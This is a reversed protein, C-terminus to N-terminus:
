FTILLAPLLNPTPKGFTVHVGAEVWDNTDKYTCCKFWM